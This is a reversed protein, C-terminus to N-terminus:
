GVGRGMIRVGGVWDGGGQSGGFINVRRREARGVVMPTAWPTEAACFSFSDWSESSKSRLNVSLHVISSASSWLHGSASLHRPLPTTNLPPFTPKRTSKNEGHSFPAQPTKVKKCSLVSSVGWCGVLEVDM